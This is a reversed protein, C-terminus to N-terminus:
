KVILGYINSPFPRKVPVCCKACLKCIHYERGLAAHFKLQFPIRNWAPEEVQFASTRLVTGVLHVGFFRINECLSSVQKNTYIYFKSCKM